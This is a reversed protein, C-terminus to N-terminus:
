LLLLLLLMQRPIEVWGEGIIVAQVPDALIPLEPQLRGTKPSSPIFLLLLLLM